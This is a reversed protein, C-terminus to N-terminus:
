FPREVNGSYFFVGLGMAFVIVGSVAHLVFAMPFNRRAEYAWAFVLGGAFTMALAVWMGPNIFGFAVPQAHAGGHEAAAEALIMLNAM